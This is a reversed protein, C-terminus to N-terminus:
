TWTTNTTINSTLLNATPIEVPPVEEDDDDCSTLVLAGMMLIASMNRLKRFNNMQKNKATSIRNKSM